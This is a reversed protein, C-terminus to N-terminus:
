MNRIFIVATAFHRTSLIPLLIQIYFVSIIVIAFCRVVMKEDYSNQPEKLNLGNHAKVYKRWYSKVSVYEKAFDIRKDGM